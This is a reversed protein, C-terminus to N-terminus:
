GTATNGPADKGQPRVKYLIIAAICSAALYGFAMFHLIRQEENRPPAYFNRVVAYLSSGLFLTDAVCLVTWRQRKTIQRMPEPIGAVEVHHARDQRLLVFLALVSIAFLAGCFKPAVGFVALCWATWGLAFVFNSRRSLPARNGGKWFITIEPNFVPAWSFCLGVVGLAKLFYDNEGAHM